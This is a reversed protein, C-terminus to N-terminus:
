LSRRIGIELTLFSIGFATVKSEPCDVTVRPQEWHRPFDIRKVRGIHGSPLRVTDGVQIRQFNNQTLSLAEAWGAKIAELCPYHKSRPFDVVTIAPHERRIPFDVRETKALHPILNKKPRKRNRYGKALVIIQLNKQM